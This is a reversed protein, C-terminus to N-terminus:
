EVISDDKFEYKLVVHDEADGGDEFTRRREFADWNMVVLWM